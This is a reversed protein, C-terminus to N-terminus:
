TSVRGVPASEGGRVIERRPCHNTVSPLVVAAFLLEDLFKSIQRLPSVAFCSQLRHPAQYTAPQRKLKWHCIAGFIGQLSAVGDAHAVCPKGLREPSGFAADDGFARLQTHQRSERHIRDDSTLQGGGEHRASSRNTRARRQHTLANCACCQLPSGCEPQGRVQYGKNCPRGCCCTAGSNWAPPGFRKTPRLCRCGIRPPSSSEPLAAAFAPRGLLGAPARGIWGTSLVWACSWALVLFPRM